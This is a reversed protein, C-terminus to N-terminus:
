ASSQVLYSVQEVNGNIPPKLKIVEVKFAKDGWRVEMARLMRLAVHEILNSRQGMEELVIRTVEGYDVTDGLSDSSEAQSFEGRIEVNVIYDGGIRAEEELCGHYARVRIGNVEIVGM